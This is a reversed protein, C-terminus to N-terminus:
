TYPNVRWGWVARGGGGFGGGWSVRLHGMVGRFEGDVARFRGTQSPLAGRAFIPELHVWKRQIAALTSLGEQLLLLKSEWAAIEDQQGPPHTPNPRLLTSHATCLSRRCALLISLALDSARWLLLLHLRSLGIWGNVAGRGSRVKFLSYYGSQRLSGVLAQHDSVEGLVEAWGKILAV